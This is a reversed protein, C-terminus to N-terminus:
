ISLSTYHKHLKKLTAKEIQEIRAVSVNYKISLDKLTINNIYRSQIIDLERENLTSLSETLFNNNQDIEYLEDPKYREDKLQIYMNEDTDDDSYISITDNKFIEMVDMVDKRNVNLTESIENIKEDSLKYFNDTTCHKKLNFFVKSKGKTTICNTIHCNKKVYKLIESKISSTAFTGFQCLQNEDYNKLAKILGIMGEQIIDDMPLNYGKYQKAIKYVIGLNNLILENKNM